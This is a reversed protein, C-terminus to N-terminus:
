ACCFRRPHDSGQPSQAAERAEILPGLAQILAERAEILPESAEILPARAEVANFHRLKIRLAAEGGFCAALIHSFQAQNPFTSANFRSIPTKSGSIFSEAWTNSRWAPLSEVQRHAGPASHRTSCVIECDLLRSRSYPVECIM